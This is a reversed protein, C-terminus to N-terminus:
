LTKSKGQKIIELIHELALNYGYLKSMQMLLYDNSGNNANCFNDLYKEKPIAVIGKSIKKQEAIILEELTM